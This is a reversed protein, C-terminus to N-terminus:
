HQTMLLWRPPNLTANQSLYLQMEKKYGMRLLCVIYASM